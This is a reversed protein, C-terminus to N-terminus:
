THRHAINTSNNRSAFHLPLNEKRLKTWTTFNNSWLNTQPCYEWTQNSISLSSASANASIHHSCNWASKRPKSERGTSQLITKWSIDYVKVSPWHTWWLIHQMELLIMGMQFVLIIPLGLKPWSVFHVMLFTFQPFSQVGILVFIFDSSRSSATM